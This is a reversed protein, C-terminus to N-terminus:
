RAVKLDAFITMRLMNSKVTDINAYSYLVCIIYRDLGILSEWIM